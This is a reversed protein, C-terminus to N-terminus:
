SGTQTKINNHARKSSLSDQAIALVAQKGTLRTVESNLAAVVAPLRAVWTVSRQGESLLMEQAYQHGFLRESPTRNWREVIAQDRHIDVHGRRILGRTERAARFGRGHVRARPRDPAITYSEVGDLAITPCSSCIPKTSRTRCRSTSVRGCCMNRRQSTSRGCPRSRPGRGLLM